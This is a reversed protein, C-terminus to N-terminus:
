PECSKPKSSPLELCRRMVSHSQFVCGMDLPQPEWQPLLVLLAMQDLNEVDGM